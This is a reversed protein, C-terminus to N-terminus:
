NLNPFIEFNIILIVLPSLDKGTGERAVGSISWSLILQSNNIKSHDNASQTTAFFFDM